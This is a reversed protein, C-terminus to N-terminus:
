SAIRDDVRAAAYLDKAFGPQSTEYRRALSLLLARARAEHRAKRERARRQREAALRASLASQLQAAIALLSDALTTRITGHPVIASPPVVVRVKQMSM